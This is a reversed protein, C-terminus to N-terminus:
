RPRFQIIVGCDAPTGAMSTILDFRLAGGAVVLSTQFVPRTVGTGASVTGLTDVYADTGATSAFKPTTTFLSTFSGGPANCKKVDLETTGSSGPTKIYAWLNIIDADYTFFCLGDLNNTGALRAYNGNLKFEATIYDNKTSLVGSTTKLTVDDVTSYSEVGATSRTVLSGNAAPLAAPLTIAYGTALASSAELAIYNGSPSPYSGPYRIILTGGDINAATSTAQQFIFTGSVANYVASATGSPLGTITGAAGTVSGSQTIRIQTGSGDNYYLDAGSRYLCGLDSVLGLLSQNPYLRLSRALTLNNQNLPLDSNINLGAPNIQVGKGTSHDHQDIATLSLNLNTAWDPGPDVSVTPVTLNMNPSITYNSM